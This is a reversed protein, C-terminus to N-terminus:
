QAIFLQLPEGKRNWCGTATFIRNKWRNISLIGYLLEGDDLSGRIDENSPLCWAQPHTHM